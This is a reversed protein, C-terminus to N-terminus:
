PEHTKRIRLRDDMITVLTNHLQLGNLKELAEALIPHAYDTRQNTIRLRIIGPHDHHILDRVDSFDGNYTLLVRHDQQARQFILPDPATKLGADNVWLVDHGLKRLFRITPEQLNEDVLLRM